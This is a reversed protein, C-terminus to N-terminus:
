YYLHSVAQFTPVALAMTKADQRLSETVTTAGLEIIDVSLPLVPHCLDTPKTSIVDAFVGFEHSM